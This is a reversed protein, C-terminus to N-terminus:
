YECYKIKKKFFFIKGSGLMQFSNDVDKGVGWGNVEQECSDSKPGLWEVPKSKSIIETNNFEFSM